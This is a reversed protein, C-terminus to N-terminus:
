YCYYYSYYNGIVTILIMLGLVISTVAMIVLEAVDENTANTNINTSNKDIINQHTLISTSSGNTDMTGNFIITDNLFSNIDASLYTDPSGGSDIFIDYTDSFPLLFSCFFLLEIIILNPQLQTIRIPSYALQISSNYSHELEYLNINAIFLYNLKQKEKRYDAASLVMGASTRISFLKDTSHLYM